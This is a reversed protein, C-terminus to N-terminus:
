APRLGLPRGAELLATWAAPAAAPAVYLEWGLEGVYTVRQAWAPAGALDIARGSMYPFAANGLDSSSVRGLIRRAEPGWLGLCAWEDTVERLAVSGDDPLHM